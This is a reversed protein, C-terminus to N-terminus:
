GLGDGLREVPFGGFREPGASSSLACSDFGHDPGLGDGVEVVQGKQQQRAQGADGVLGPAVWLDGGPGIVTIAESPVDPQPRLVVEHIEAGGGHVPELVTAGGDSGCNVPPIEASRGTGWPPSPLASGAAPGSASRTSSWRARCHNGWPVGNLAHGRAVVSGNMGPDPEPDGAVRTGVPATGGSIMGSPEGEAPAAPRVTGRRVGTRRVVAAGALDHDATDGALGDGAV